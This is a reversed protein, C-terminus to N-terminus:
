SAPAPGPKARGIRQPRRRDGPDYNPCTAATACLGMTTVTLVLARYDHELDSIRKEFRDERSHWTQELRHWEAERGEGQTKLISTQERLLEITDKAETIAAARSERIDRRLAIYAGVAGAIIGVAAGAIAVFETV